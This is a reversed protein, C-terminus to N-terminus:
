LGAQWPYKAGVLLRGSKDTVESALVMGPELNELAVISM